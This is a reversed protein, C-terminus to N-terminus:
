KEMNNFLTNFFKSSVEKSNVSKGGDRWSLDTEAKRKETEETLIEGTTKKPVRQFDQTDFISMNNDSIKYNSGEYINLSSVSSSKTQDTSRLIEIMDGMRKQEAHRKNSVIQKKEKITNAKNDMASLNATKDKEWITNSTESKTFKRPGGIDTIEGTRASSIHHATMLGDDKNNLKRSKQEEALQDLTKSEKEGAIKTDEKAIEKELFKIKHQDSM